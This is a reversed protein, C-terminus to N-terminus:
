GLTESLDEVPPCLCFLNRDGYANDIRGVHPWFKFEQLWPAPFAAQQRSYPHSWDDRAIESATHPANKLPNDDRDM